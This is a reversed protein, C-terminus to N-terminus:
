ENDPLPPESDPNPPPGGPSGARPGRRFGGGMGRGTMGELNAIQDAPVVGRIQEWIQLEANVLTAEAKQADALLKGINQRDYTPAVVAQRLAQAATCAKQWLPALTQGGTTLINKLSAKQDDTLRLNSARDVMNASPPMLAM